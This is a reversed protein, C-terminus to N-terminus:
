SKERIEKLKEALRQSEAEQANARETEKKKDEAAKMASHYLTDTADELSVLDVLIGEANEAMAELAERRAEPMDPNQEVQKRINEATERLKDARETRRLKSAEMEGNIIRLFDM